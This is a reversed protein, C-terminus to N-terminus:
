YVGPMELSKLNSVKAVKASGINAWDMATKSSGATQACASLGLALLTLFCIKQM